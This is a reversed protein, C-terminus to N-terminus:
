FRNRRLKYRLTRNNSSKIPLIFKMEILQKFASHLIHHDVRKRPSIFKLVERTTFIAFKFKKQIMNKMYNLWNEDQPGDSNISDTNEVSMMEFTNSSNDSITHTKLRKCFLEKPYFGLDVSLQRISRNLKILNFKVKAEQKDIETMKAKVNEYFNESLISINEADNQYICNNVNEETVTKSKENIDSRFEVKLKEHSGINSKTIMNPKLEHNKVIEDVDKTLSLEDCEKDGHIFVSDDFYEQISFLEENCHDINDNIIIENCDDVEVDNIVNETKINYIKGDYQDYYETIATSSTVDSSINSIVTQLIDNTMNSRSPSDNRKSNHKNQRFRDELYKLNSKTAYRLAEIQTENIRSMDYQDSNAQYFPKFSEQSAEDIEADFLISDREHYQNFKRKLMLLQTENPIIAYRCKMIELITKFGIQSFNYPYDPDKCFELVKSDEDLIRQTRQLCKVKNQIKRIDCTGFFCFRIDNYLASTAERTFNRYYEIGAMLRFIDFRSWSLSHHGSYSLDILENQLDTNFKNEIEAIDCPFSLSEVLRYTQLLRTGSKKEFTITLRRRECYQCLLEILHLSVDDMRSNMFRLFAHLYSKRSFFRFRNESFIGQVFQQYTCEEHEITRQDFTITNIEQTYLHVFEDALIRLNKQFFIRLYFNMIKQKKKPIYINYDIIKHLLEFFKVDKLRKKMNLLYDHINVLPIYEDRQLKRFYIQTETNSLLQTNVGGKIYFEVLLIEIIMMELNFEKTTITFLTFDLLRRTLEYLYDYIEATRFIYKKGIKCGTYIDTILHMGTIFNISIESRHGHGCNSRKLLIECSESLSKTLRTPSYPSSARSLIQDVQKYIIFGSVACARSLRVIREYIEPLMCNYFNIKNIGTADLLLKRRNVEFLHSNYNKLAKCGLVSNSATRFNKGFKNNVHLVFNKDIEDYAVKSSVSLDINLFNFYSTDIKQDLLFYLEDICSSSAFRKNGFSEFHYCIFKRKDVLSEFIEFFIKTLSRPINAHFKDFYGDEAENNSNENKRQFTNEDNNVLYQTYTDHMRLKIFAQDLTDYLNQSIAIIEQEICHAVYKKTM